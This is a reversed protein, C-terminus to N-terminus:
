QQWFELDCFLYQTTATANLTIGTLTLAVAGNKSLTVGTSSAGCPTTSVATLSATGGSYVQKFDVKNGRFPLGVTQLYGDNIFLGIVSGSTSTFSPFTTGTDPAAQSGIWVPQVAPNDSTITISASSTVATKITLLVKVTRSKVEAQAEQDSGLPQAQPM